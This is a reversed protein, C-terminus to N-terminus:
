VGTAIVCTSIFAGIAESVDGSVATIEGFVATTGGDVGMVESSSIEAGGVDSLTTTSFFPLLFVATKIPPPTIPPITSQMQRNSAIPAILSSPWSSIPVASSVATIPVMIESSGGSNCVGALASSSMGVSGGGGSASGLIIKTGM